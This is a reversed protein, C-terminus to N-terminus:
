SKGLRVTKSDISRPISLKSSTPLEMRGVNGFDDSACDLVMESIRM